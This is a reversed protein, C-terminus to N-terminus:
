RRPLYRYFENDVDHSSSYRNVYGRPYNHDSEICAKYIDNYNISRGVAALRNTIVGVCVSVNEVDYPSTPIDQAQVMSPVVLMAASVMLAKYNM